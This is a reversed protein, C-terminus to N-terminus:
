CCQLNPRRRWRRSVRRGVVDKRYSFSLIVRSGNSRLVRGAEAVHWAALATGSAGLYPFVEVALVLDCSADAVGALDHGSGVAFRLNDYGECRQRAAAIMGSSVDLGTVEAAHPALAV